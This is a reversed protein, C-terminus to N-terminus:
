DDVIRSRPYGLAELIKTVGIYVGLSISAILGGVEKDSVYGGLLSDPKFAHIAACINVCAITCVIPILASFTPVRMGPSERYVVPRSVKRGVLVMACISSLILLWVSLKDPLNDEALFLPIGFLVFLVIIAVRLM